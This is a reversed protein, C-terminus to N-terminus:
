RSWQIRWERSLGKTALIGNRYTYPLNGYPCRPVSPLYLPVLEELDSPDRHRHAQFRRLAVAIRAAQWHALCYRESSFADRDRTLLRSFAYRRRSPGPRLGLAGYSSNSNDEPFADEAAPEQVERWDEDLQNAAKAILVHWSFMERWGPREAIMSTPDSQSPIVRLVTARDLLHQGRVFVDVPVRSALLEDLRAQLSALAELSPRTDSLSKLIERLANQEYSNKTGHAGYGGERITRLTIALALLSDDFRLGKEDSWGHQWIWRNRSYSVANQGPHGEELRALAEDHAFFSAGPCPLPEVEELTTRRLVPAPIGQTRARLEAIDKTLREQHAAIASKARTYTDLVILGLCLLPIGVVALVWKWAKKVVVSTYGPDRM